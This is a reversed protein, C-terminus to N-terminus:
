EAISNFSPEFLILLASFYVISSYISYRILIPEVLAVLLFNSIVMLCGLVLYIYKKDQKVKFIMLVGYAFTAVFFIFFINSGFGNRMIDHAYLTFFKKPKNRIIDKSISLTIKDIEKYFAISGPNNLYSGIIVKANRHCIENYAYNYHHVIQATEINENNSKLTEYTLNQETLKQQIEGFLKREFTNSIFVTDKKESIYLADTILQLGTYPTSIFANHKMYHYTRDVVNLSIVTLVMFILSSLMLKMDRNKYYLYMIVILTVPYLFYFQARILILLSLIIFYQLIAKLSHEFIFQLLFKICLLFLALALPETAIGNGIRYLAYYFLFSLLLLTLDSLKFAKKLYNLLYVIVGLIILLQVINLVQLGYSGFLMEFFSVILPYGASRIPQGEIYGISDPYIKIDKFALFITILGGLLIYLYKFPKIKM